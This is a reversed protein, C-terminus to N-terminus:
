ASSRSLPWLGIMLCSLVHWVIVIGIGSTYAALALYFIPLPAGHLSLAFKIANAMSWAIILATATSYAVHLLIAGIHRSLYLKGLRHFGRQPIAPTEIRFLRPLYATKKRPIIILCIIAAAGGVGVWVYADVSMSMFILQVCEAFLLGLLLVCYLSFLAFEFGFLTFRTRDRPGTGDSHQEAAYENAM